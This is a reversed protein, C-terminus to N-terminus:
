DHCAALSIGVTLAKRVLDIQRGQRSPIRSATGSFIGGVTCTASYGRDLPCKLGESAAMKQERPLRASM